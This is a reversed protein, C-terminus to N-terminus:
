LSPPLPPLFPPKHTSSSIRDRVLAWAVDLIPAKHAATQAAEFNGGLGVKYFLLNGDWTSAALLHILETNGGGLPVPSWALASVTDTPQGLLLDGNPNPNAVQMNSSHVSISPVFFFFFLLSFSDM